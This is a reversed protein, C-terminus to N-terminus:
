CVHQGKIREKSSVEVLVSKVINACNELTWGSILKKGNEGLNKRLTPDILLERICFALEEVNGVPVIKGTDRNILLDDVCGVRDSAIVPLGAAMSEHIVLGYPEFLSPLIAIDAAYQLEIVAEQELRGMYIINNNHVVADQIMMREPGDGVILLRANKHIASVNSFSELLVRLGKCKHLRGVFIFVVDSDTIGLRRRIRERGIAGLDECRKMILTVDVTYKIVTIRAEEVCYNRFYEAQRSGFPLMMAPIKFMLPYVIRKIARKWLPLDVPLPTDSEVVVPIGRFWCVLTAFRMISEGWGAIYAVGYGNDRFARYLTLAAFFKSRPLVTANYGDLSLNWPQSSNEAIFFVDIRDTGGVCHALERVFGLFYPTPETQFIIYRKTLKSM